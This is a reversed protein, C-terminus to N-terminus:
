WWFILSVVSFNLDLGQRQAVPLCSTSTAKKHNQFQRIGLGVGRYQTLSTVFGGGLGASIRSRSFAEGRIALVKWPVTWKEAEHLRVATDFARGEATRVELGLYPMKWKDRPGGPTAGRIVVACRTM